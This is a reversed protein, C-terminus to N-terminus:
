KPALALVYDPGGQSHSPKAHMGCTLYALDSDPM